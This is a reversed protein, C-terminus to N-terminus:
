FSKRYGHLGGVIGTLALGGLDDLDALLGRRVSARAFNAHAQVGGGNVRRVAVAGDAAGVRHFARQDNGVAVACADDIFDARAHIGLPQVLAHPNIVALAASSQEAGGGLVDRQINIQNRRQRVVRPEIFTRAQTYRAHGRVAADGEASVKSSFGYEDGAARARDPM